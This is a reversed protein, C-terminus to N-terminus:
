LPAPELVPPAPADELAAPPNWGISAVASAQEEVLLHAYVTSTTALSEHGMRMQVVQAPVGAMLQWSAFTHRLSHPTLHKTLGAREMTDVWQRAAFRHPHIQGGRPAMFLLDDPAKDKALSAFADMAWDDVMIVRRSRRSKPTGLERGVRAKKWARVVSVTRAKVNLDSVRVATAEGIRCGTVLLFAILPKYHDQMEAYFVGWEERTFIEKEERIGDSPVPAGKAVNRNIHGADVASQLVSSLLGHANRVTKPAVTEIPSLPKFGAAQEKARRKQSRDTPQKMQWTIWGIVDDVTITDLPYDGLAPLWTRAAEREYGAITGDEINISKRELHKRFWEELTLMSSKETKGLIKLAAQYGRKEVIDKIREAGELSTLTPTFKFKGADDYYGVRYREGSKGTRTQITAMPLGM